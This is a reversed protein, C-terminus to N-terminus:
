SVEDTIVTDASYGRLEPNRKVTKSSPMEKLKKVITPHAMIVKENGIPSQMMYCLPEAIRGFRKNWKKQIREHQTFVRGGTKGLQKQAALIHRRKLKHVKAPKYTVCNVNEFIRVGAIDGLQNPSLTNEGLPTIGHYRPLPDPAPPKHCTSNEHILRMARQVEEFTLTDKM